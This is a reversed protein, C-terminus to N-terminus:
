IQKRIIILRKLTFPENDGGNRNDKSSVTLEVWMGHRKKPTKPTGVEFVAHMFKLDVKHNKAFYFKEVKGSTGDTKYSTVKRAIANNEFSYDVSAKSSDSNGYYFDWKAGDEESGNQPYTISYSRMLDYEIQSMLISATEMNEQHAMGKSSGKMGVRFVNMLAIIIFSTIVVGISVEVLTLARKNKNM